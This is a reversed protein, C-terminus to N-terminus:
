SGGEAEEEVQSGAEHAGPDELVEEARAEERILATMAPFNSGFMYNM